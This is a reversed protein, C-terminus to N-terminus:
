IIKTSVSFVKNSTKIVNYLELFLYIKHDHTDYSKFM